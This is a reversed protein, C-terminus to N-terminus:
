RAYVGPVAHLAKAPDDYETRELDKNRIVHASGATREIRTGVVSVETIIDPAPKPPSPSAPSPSPSASAPDNVNVNVRPTPPATPEALAPTPACLAALTGSFFLARKLKPDRPKVPFQQPVM